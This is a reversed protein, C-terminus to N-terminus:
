GQLRMNKYNYAHTYQLNQSLIKSNIVLINNTQQPGVTISFESISRKEKFFKDETKTSEVNVWLILGLSWM